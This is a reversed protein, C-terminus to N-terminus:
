SDDSTSRSRSTKKTAKTAKAARKAPRTATREKQAEVDDDTLGEEEAEDVLAQRRARDSEYEMEDPSFDDSDIGEDELKAKLRSAKVARHQETLKARTVHEQRGGRQSVAKVLDVLHQAEKEEDDEEVQPHAEEYEALSAAELIAANLKRRVFRAQERDAPFEKVDFGSISWGTEMDVCLGSTMHDALRVYEPNQPM